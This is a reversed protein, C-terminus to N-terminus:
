RGAALMQRMRRIEIEQDAEVHSAFTFIDTEQGAGPNAFLAEVMIIAGEHHRIMHELFLRDFEAGRGAALEAMNEPTLMGPMLHHGMRHHAHEGPVEEGREELWRGMLAIEDRQSIAIRKALLHIDLSETREEALAAMDLAQAHHPIMGQMFEVDATTHPRSASSPFESIQLKRGREGPAGPRVIRSGSPAEVAASLSPQPPPATATPASTACAAPALCLLVLVAEKALPLKKM